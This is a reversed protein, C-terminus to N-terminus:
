KREYLASITNSQMKVDQSTSFAHNVEVQEKHAGGARNPLADVVDETVNDLEFSNPSFVYVQAAMEQEEYDNGFRNPLDTKDVPNITIFPADAQTIDANSYSPRIAVDKENVTRIPVTDDDITKTGTKLSDKIATRFATRSTM